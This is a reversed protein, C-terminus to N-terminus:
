WEQNKAPRQLADTPRTDTAHEKRYLQASVALGLAEWELGVGDVM